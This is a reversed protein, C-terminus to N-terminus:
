ILRKHLWGQTLLLLMTPNHTPCGGLIPYEFQVQLLLLLQLVCLQQLQLKCACGHRVHGWCCCCCLQWGAAAADCIMCRMEHQQLLLCSDLNFLLVPGLVKCGKPSLLPCPALFSLAQFLQVLMHLLLLLAHL